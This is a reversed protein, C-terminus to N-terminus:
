IFGHFGSSHLSNQRCFNNVWEEMLSELKCKSERLESEVRVLQEETESQQSQLRKLERECRLERYRPSYVAEMNPSGDYRVINDSRRTTCRHNVFSARAVSMASIDKKASPQLSTSTQEITAVGDPLVSDSISLM